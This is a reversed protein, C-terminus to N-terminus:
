EGKKTLHKKYIAKLAEFKEEAVQKMKPTWALGGPYAEKEKEEFTKNFGILDNLLEEEDDIFNETELTEIVNKYTERISQENMICEM